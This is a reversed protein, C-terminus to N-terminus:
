PGGRLLMDKLFHPTLLGGEEATAKTVLHIRDISLPSCPLLARGLHERGQLRLPTAPIPGLPRSVEHGHDAPSHLAPYSPLARSSLAGLSQLGPNWSGPSLCPSWARASAWSPTVPLSWGGSVGLAPGSLLPLWACSPTTM